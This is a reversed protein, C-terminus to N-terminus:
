WHLNFSYRPDIEGLHKKMELRSGDRYSNINMTIYILSTFVLLDKFVDNRDMRNGTLYHICIVALPVFYVSITASDSLGSIWCLLILIALIITKLDPLTKKNVFQILDKGVFFISLLFLIKYTDHLSFYIGSVYYKKTMLIFIIFIILYGVRRLNKGIATFKLSALVLASAIVEPISSFLFYTKFGSRFIAGLTHRLSMKYFHELEAQFSYFILVSTIIASLLFKVYASWHLKKVYIFQFSFFQAQLPKNQACHLAM